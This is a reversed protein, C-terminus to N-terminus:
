THRQLERKSQWMHYAAVGLAPMVCLAFLSGYITFMFKPGLRYGHWYARTFIAMGDAGMACSLIVATSVLFPCAFLGGKSLRKGNSTRIRCCLATVVTSILVPIALTFMGLCWDTVAILIGSGCILVAIIVLQRTM